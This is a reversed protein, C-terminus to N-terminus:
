DESKPRAKASRKWIEYILVSTILWPVFGYILADAFKIRGSFGLFVTTVAPPVIIFNGEPHIMTPAFGMAAIASVIWHVRRSYGAPSRKLVLIGVILASAIGGTVAFEKFVVFTSITEFRM